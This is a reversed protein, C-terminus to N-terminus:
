AAPFILFVWKKATTDFRTYEAIGNSFVRLYYDINNLRIYRQSFITLNKDTISTPPITNNTM